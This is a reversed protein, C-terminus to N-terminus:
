MRQSSRVRQCKGPASYTPRCMSMLSSLSPPRNRSGDHRAFGKWRRSVDPSLQWEAVHEHLGDAHRRWAGASVNTVAALVAGLRKPQQAFQSKISGRHYKSGTLM